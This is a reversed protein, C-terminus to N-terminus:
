EALFMEELSPENVEVRFINVHCNTFARIIEAIKQESGVTITTFAADRQM